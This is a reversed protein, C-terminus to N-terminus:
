RTRRIRAPGSTSARTVLDNRGTATWPPTAAGASVASVAASSPKRSRVPPSPTATAILPQAARRHARGQQAELPGRHRGGEGEGSPGVEDLGRVETLQRGEEVDAEHPQQRHASGE